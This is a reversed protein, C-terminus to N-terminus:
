KRLYSQHVVVITRTGSARPARHGYEYMVAEDTERTSRQMSEGITETAARAAEPKSLFATVQQKGPAAMTPTTGRALLAELAYSELLKGSLAQFLAPSTYVDASTVKGNIAVALGIGDKYKRLQPLLADVYARRNGSVM